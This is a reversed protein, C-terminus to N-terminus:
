FEHIILFYKSFLAKIESLLKLLTIFIDVLFPLVFHMAKIVGILWIYILIM